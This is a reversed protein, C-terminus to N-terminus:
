CIKRSEEIVQKLIVGTVPKTLVENDLKQLFKLINDVQSPYVYMLDRCYKSISFDLESAYDVEDKASLGDLYEGIEVLTDVNGDLAEKAVKYSCGKFKSYFNYVDGGFSCPFCFYSSSHEYIVLSPKKDDHWPCCIAKLENSYQIAKQGTLEEIVELITKKM